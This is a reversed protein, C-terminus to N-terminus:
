RRGSGLLRLIFLFLNIFDLYLSLAGLISIKTMLAASGDAQIKPDQAMRNLRQTDYAVLGSFLLVGVASIIFDLPGSGVFMNVVMAIVLGILAMLFYSRYKTLDIHTTYGIMTMVLFTLMTVGFAMTISGVDYILFIVSLTFGNLAAYAFFLGTAMGTSLRMIAASLAIVMVLEGIIAGFMLLTNGMLVDILGTYLTLFSVGTTVLLGLTMWMYVQRMLPQVAVRPEALNQGVSRDMNFDFAM